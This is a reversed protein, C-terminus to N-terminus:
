GFFIRREVKTGQIVVEVDGEGGGAGREVGEEVM